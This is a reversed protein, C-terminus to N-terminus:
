RNDCPVARISIMQDSTAIREFANIGERISVDRLEIVVGECMLRSEAEFKKHLYLMSLRRDDNGCAVGERSEILDSHRSIGLDCYRLKVFRLPAFNM